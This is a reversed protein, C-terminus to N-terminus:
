DKVVTTRVFPNPSVILKQTKLNSNQTAEEVGTFKIIRGYVDYDTGSYFGRTDDWTVLANSDGFAIGRSYEDSLADSIQFNDNILTGSSSIWQGYVDGKNDRDDSWIALYNNGDSEVKSLGRGFGAPTTAIFITDSLFSGTLSIIRGLVSSGTGVPTTSVVIYNTGNFSVDADENNGMLITFTSDIKVGTSDILQGVVYASSKSVGQSWVVFYSIGSYAVDPRYNYLTHPSIKSIHFSSDERTGEASIFQGWINASDVGQNSCWCVFYRKGDWIVAPYCLSRSGYNTTNVIFPTDILNGTQSVLQGYINSTLRVRNDRWVILYCSDGFTLDINLQGSDELCIPFNTDILAGTKSVFQGWIDAKTYDGTKRSDEWVVLFRDKGFAVASYHQGLPATSIPFEGSLIIYLLVSILM